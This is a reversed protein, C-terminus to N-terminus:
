ASFCSVFINRGEGICTCKHVNMKLFPIPFTHTRLCRPRRSCISRRSFDPRRLCSSIKFLYTTRFLLSTKFLVKFLHFTEFLKSEQVLLIDLVTPSLNFLQFSEILQSTNFLKLNGKFLAELGKPCFRGSLAGSKDYNDSQSLPGGIQYRNV